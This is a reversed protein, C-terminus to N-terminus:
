NKADAKAATTTAKLGKIVKSEKDLFRASGSWDIKENVIKFVMVNLGKQLTVETTDQDKELPRAETVKLVEKGNLYVKCQDDSGTKLLVGKMEEPAHLYCVAYGVSDEIQKGLFENFDLYDEKAQYKKWALEKGGAKVKDGAKPRLKAEDAVQQKDLGEAGSQGDDLPIPALLLWTQIYGEANIGSEEDARVASGFLVLVAGAALVTMLCRM